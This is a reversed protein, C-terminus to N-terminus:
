EIEDSGVSTQVSYLSPGYFREEWREILPKVSELAVRQPGHIWVIANNGPTATALDWARGLAPANDAGGVFQTSALLKTVADIGNAYVNERNTEYRWDSDALILQVDMDAPLARLATMIQYQWQGMSASTDVVVVVRRLHAPTRAELSQKVI